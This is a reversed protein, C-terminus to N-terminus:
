KTTLTTIKRLSVKGDEEKEFAIVDGEVWGLQALMEPEFLLLLDDGEKEVKAIFVKNESM